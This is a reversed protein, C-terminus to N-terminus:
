SLRALLNLTVFLVLANTEQLENKLLEEDIKENPTDFHMVVLNTDAQEYLDGIIKERKDFDKGVCSFFIRQAQKSVVKRKPSPIIKM